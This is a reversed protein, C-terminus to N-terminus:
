LPFVCIGVPALREATILSTSKNEIITHFVNQHLSFSASDNLTIIGICLNIVGFLETNRPEILVNVTQFAYPYGLM